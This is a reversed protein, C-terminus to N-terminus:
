ETPGTLRLQGPGNINAALAANFNRQLEGPASARFRARIVDGHLLHPLRADSLVWFVVVSDQKRGIKGRVGASRRRRTAQRNHEVKAIFAGILKGGGRTKIFQLKGFAREGTQFTSVGGGGRGASRKVRGGWIEYNPVLVGKKGHVTIHAAEEFALVVKPMTSYVVGAPGFTPVSPRPYIRMRWTKSLQEGRALGSRAMDQRLKSQWGSLTVDMASRAAGAVRKRGADIEKDFDGVLAARLQINFDSM